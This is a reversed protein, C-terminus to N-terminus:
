DGCVAPPQVCGGTSVNMGHIDSGVDEEAGISLREPADRGPPETAIAAESDVTPEIAPTRLAGQRLSVSPMAHEKGVLFRRDCRAVTRASRAHALRVDPPLCGAIARAVLRRAHAVRGCTSGSRAFPTM